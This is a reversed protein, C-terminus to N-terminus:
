LFTIVVWQVSLSNGGNNHVGYRAIECDVEAPHHISPLLVVASKSGQVAAAAVMGETARLGSTNSPRLNSTVRGSLWFKKRVCLHPSALLPCYVLGTEQVASVLMVASYAHQASSLM